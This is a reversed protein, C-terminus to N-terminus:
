KKRPVVCGEIGSYEKFFWAPAEYPKGKAKGYDYAFGGVSKFPRVPEARQIKRAAANAMLLASYRDKRLRGKKQGPLKIEPTDWHDRNTAPTQSHIITALEDKLKEIEVVNDDLTDTLSGSVDDEALAEAISVTDFMPFLLMKDEFDKRMGHNAERVWNADAFNIMELIHLGEKNDSDKEKQPDIIPWIKYEKDSIKDSDHLAEEVAIGGGQADMAIHVCPFVKMLDRIKRACYGYFDEEKVLKKELRNRFLQRNTTWVYVIRRHDEHLELVVISFNDQLAAPDVGYVYSYRPVGRTVASFQVLGSPLQIPTNTVCSNILSMRYFNNSDKQFCAGYEMNYNGAHSTAKSRAIEKEDMFGPPLLDAPIRIVSFDKWDLAAPVAGNYIEELKRKDGQSEIISKYRQWYKAFHNFGYYATGSIISQNGTFGGNGELEPNWMGQRKLVRRRAELKTQEIPSLNVGTFGSLVTEYIQEPVSAFEEVILYNARQGRINNGNGLPLAVIISDGILFECRDIARKPGSRGGNLVLSQFVPANRWIAECYEFVVKAHRFAAGVIVIKCGQNLLARVMCYLALMFSKSMGRAGILMPYKRVWLEHMVALQFPALEVNFIHKCTFYLNEPNAILQLLPEYPKELIDEENLATLPNLLSPLPLSSDFGYYEAEIMEELNLEKSQLKVEEKKKKRPM